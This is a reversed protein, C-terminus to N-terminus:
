KIRYRICLCSLLISEELPLKLFGEKKDIIHYILQESFVDDEKIALELYSINTMIIPFLELQKKEIMRNKAQETYFYGLFKDVITKQKFLLYYDFIIILIDKPLRLKLFINQFIPNNEHTTINTKYNRRKSNSVLYTNIEYVNPIIKKNSFFREIINDAMPVVCDSM